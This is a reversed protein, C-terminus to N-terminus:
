VRERPRVDASISAPMAEDPVGLYRLMRVQHQRLGRVAVPAATRGALVEALVAVGPEQFERVRSLDVAVPGDPPAAEVLERVRRAAPVDFVGEIRITLGRTSDQQMAPEADTYPSVLRGRAPGSHENRLATYCV